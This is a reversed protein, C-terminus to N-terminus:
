EGALRPCPSRDQAAGPPALCASPRGLAALADAPRARRGERRHQLAPIAAAEAPRHPARRTLDVGQPGLASQVHAHQAPVLRRESCAPNMCRVTPGSASGRSASPCIPWPRNSSACTAAGRPCMATASSTTCSSMRNPGSCSSPSSAGRGTTPWRPPTRTARWSRETWTSPRTAERAGQQLAAVLTRNAQGLAALPPPSGTARPYLAGPTTTPDSERTGRRTKTKVTPPVHPVWEGM